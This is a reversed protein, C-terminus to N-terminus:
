QSLIPGALGTWGMRAAAVGERLVVDGRFEVVSVVPASVRRELEALNSAVSADVQLSLRNVIIGAVTMGRAEIAEVTLLTHNIMGLRDAAIVLVPCGADVAFDAFAEEDSVPSLWGGAGEILLLDVRDRWWDMGGRLLQTKVRTGEQRAAVPPALPALLCQPAIRERPYAAGTAAWLAEVDDWRPSPSTPESAGSCVPKYAGVRVGAARLAAAIRSAVYTKGVGTDTGTIILGRMGDM